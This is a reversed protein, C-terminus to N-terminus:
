LSGPMRGEKYGHRLYHQKGCEFEGAEVCEVVDAYNQLYWDEDVEHEFPLRGEFYGEVAFHHRASKFDGNDIAKKVDPYKSCYWEEDVEVARLLKRISAMLQKEGLGRGGNLLEKRLVVYPALYRM